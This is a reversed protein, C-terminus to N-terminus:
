ITSGTTTFGSVTEFLADIYKPITGSICFPLAGFVSWLIWALAVIVFGEKAYIMANEPKKRGFILFLVMLVASTILFARMTEEGYIASVIAPIVMVLAEVGLMRGLIFSTMRYNM